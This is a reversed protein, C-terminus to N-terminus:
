PAWRFSMQVFADLRQDESRWGIPSQALSKRRSLRIRPLITAIVFTM